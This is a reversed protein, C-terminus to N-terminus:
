GPSNLTFNQPGLSYGLKAESYILETDVNMDSIGLKLQTSVHELQFCSSIQHIINDISNLPDKVLVLFILLTYNLFFRDLEIQGLFNIKCFFDFGVTQYRPAKLTLYSPNKNYICPSM